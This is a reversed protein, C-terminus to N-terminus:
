SDETILCCFSLIKWCIKKQVLLLHFRNEFLLIWWCRPLYKIAQLSVWGRHVLLLLQLLTIPTSLPSVIIKLEVATARLQATFLTISCRKEMFANIEIFCLGYGPSLLYLVSGTMWETVRKLNLRDLFITPWLRPAMTDSYVWSERLRTPSPTLFWQSKEPATLMKYYQSSYRWPTPSCSARLGPSSYRFASVAPITPLTKRTYQSPAAPVAWFSYAHLRGDLCLTRM